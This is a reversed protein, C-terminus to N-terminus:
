ISYTEVKRIVNKPKGLRQDDASAVEIEGFVVSCVMSLREIEWSKKEGLWERIVGHLLLIIEQGPSNSNKKKSQIKGNRKWKLKWGARFNGLLFLCVLFFFFIIFVPFEYSMEEGDGYCSMVYSRYGSIEHLDHDHDFHSMLRWALELWCRASLQLYILEKSTFFCVFFLASFSSFSLTKHVKTDNIDHWMTKVTTHKQRAQDWLGNLPWQAVYVMSSVTNWADIKLAVVRRNSLLLVKHALSHSNLPFLPSTMLHWHWTFIKLSSFISASSNEVWCLGARMSHSQKTKRCGTSANGLISSHALFFTIIYIDLMVHTSVMEKGSEHRRTNSTASFFNWQSLVSEDATLLRVVFAFSRSVIVFNKKREKPKKKRSRLKGVWVLSLSSFTFCRARTEHAKTMIVHIARYGFVRSSLSSIFTILVYNRGLFTRESGDASDLTKHSIACHLLAFFFVHFIARSMSERSRQSVISAKKTKTTTNDRVLHILNFIILYVIKM